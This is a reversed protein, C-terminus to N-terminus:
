KGGHQITKAALDFLLVKHVDSGGEFYRSVKIGHIHGMALLHRCHRGREEMSRNVALYLTANNPM